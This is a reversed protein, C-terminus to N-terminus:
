VLEKSNRIYYALKEKLPEYRDDKYAPNGALLTAELEPDELSLLAKIPIRSDKVKSVYSKVTNKSVSLTKAITKYGKGNHYMRLLQKVLSMHKPKGSM